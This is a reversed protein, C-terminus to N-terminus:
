LTVFLVWQVEEKLSSSVGTDLVNLANSWMIKNTSGKCKKWSEKRKHLPWDFYTSNLMPMEELKRKKKHLTWDFYTSNVDVLLFSVTITLPFTRFHFWDVLFVFPDHIKEIKNWQMWRRM